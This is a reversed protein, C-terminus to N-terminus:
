AAGYIDESSADHHNKDCDIGHNSVNENIETHMPPNMVDQNTNRREFDALRERTPRSRFIPVINKLRLRAQEDAAPGWSPSPMMYQDALKLLSRPAM